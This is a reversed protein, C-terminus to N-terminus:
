INRKQKRKPEFVNKKRQQHSISRMKEGSKEASYYGSAVINGFGMFAQLQSYIFLSFISELHEQEGSLVKDRLSELLTQAASPSKRGETTNCDSVAYVSQSQITPLLYWAKFEQELQSSRSSVVATPCLFERPPPTESHLRMLLSPCQLELLLGKVGGTVAQSSAFM